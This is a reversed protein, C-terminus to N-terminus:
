SKGFISFAYSAVIQYYSGLTSSYLWISVTHTGVNFYTPIQCTIGFANGGATTTNGMIEGISDFACVLVQGNLYAFQGSVISEKTNSIVTNFKM